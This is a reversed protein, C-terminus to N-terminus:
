DATGTLSNNSSFKKRIKGLEKDVRIKEQEKNSAGRIDSIFVQSTGPEADGQQAFYQHLTEALEGAPRAYKSAQGHHRHAPVGSTLSLQANTSHAQSEKCARERLALSQASLTLRAQM